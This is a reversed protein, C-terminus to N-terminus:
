SVHYTYFSAIFIPLGILIVTVIISFVNNFIVSNNQDAWELDTLSVFVSLCIELYGEFFLRIITGWFLTKSYKTYCNNACKCKDKFCSSIAWIVCQIIYVNILM